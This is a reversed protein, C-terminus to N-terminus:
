SKDCHCGNPNINVTQMVALIDEMIHKNVRERWAWMIIYFGRVGIGGTLASFEPVTPASHPTAPAPAISGYRSLVCM